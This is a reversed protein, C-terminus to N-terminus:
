VEYRWCPTNCLRILEAYPDRRRALARAMHRWLDAVSGNNDIIADGDAVAIGDESAHWREPEDDPRRLHIVLGGLERIMSAENEFRVDDIVVSKGINLLKQIQRRSVNVWIDRDIYRRGWETGLTQLLYRMSCGLSEIQEQKNARLFEIRNPSVGAEYLLTDAMAKLPGAFSLPVWGDRVLKLSATTKGSHMRGSIGVLLGKSM